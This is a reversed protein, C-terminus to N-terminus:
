SARALTSFAIPLEPALIPRGGQEDLFRKLKLELDKWDTYIYDRSTDTDGDRRGVQWKVLMRTMWSYHTYLLAGAITWMKDPQWGQDHLFQQAQKKALDRDVSRPSAAMLSVSFFVSPKSQILSLHTELLRKIKLQHQGLHVSGGIIVCDSHKIKNTLTAVSKIPQVNVSSSSFGQNRAQQDLYHAIKSTHGESSGYIILLKKNNRLRGM